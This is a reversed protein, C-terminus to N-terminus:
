SSEERSFPNPTHYRELAEVRRIHEKLFASEEKQGNGLYYRALAERFELLRIDTEPWVKEQTKILEKQVKIAEDFQANMAYASALDVRWGVLVRPRSGYRQMHEVALKFYHVSDPINGLQRYASGLLHEAFWSSKHRRHQEGNDDLILLCLDICSKLNGKRIYARALEYRLDQTYIKSYDNNDGTRLSLLEELIEIAEDIKNQDLLARARQYMMDQHRSDHRHGKESNFYLNEVRDLMELAGPAGEDILGVARRFLSSIYAPHTESLGKDASVLAAQYTKNSGTSVRETKYAEQLKRASSRYEPSENGLTRMRVKVVHELLTIASSANKSKLYATALRHQAELKTPSEEPFDMEIIIRELLDRRRDIGQCAAEEMYLVAYKMSPTEPDLELRSFISQLLKRRLATRLSYLESAKYCTFLLRSIELPCTDQSEVVDRGEILAKFHPAFPSTLEMKYNLKECSLAAITAARIWNLQRQKYHQRQKFWAHVTPYIALRRSGSPNEIQRIYSLKELWTVADNLRCDDYEVAGTTMMPPLQDHHWKTLSFPQIAVEETGKTPRKDWQFDTIGAVRLRRKPMPILDTMSLIGLLDLADQHHVQDSRELIKISAELSSKLTGLMSQQPQRPMDRFSMDEETEDFSHFDDDSEDSSRSVDERTQDLEDAYESLTSLGTRIQSSAHLIGLPFGQFKNVINRVQPRVGEKESEIIEASKYFFDIADTEELCQLHMTGITNHKECKRDQSTILITALPWSHFFKTCDMDPDKMNDLILFWPKVIKSMADYADNADKRDRGSVAKAM